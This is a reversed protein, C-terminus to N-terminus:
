PNPKGRTDLRRSRLAWRKAQASKPTEEGEEANHCDILPGLDNVLAERLEERTVEEEGKRVIVAWVHPFAFEAVAATLYGLPDSVVDICHDELLLRDLGTFVFHEPKLKGGQQNGVFDFEVCRVAFEICIPGEYEVWIACSPDGIADLELVLDDEDEASILCASLDPWRVLYLPM